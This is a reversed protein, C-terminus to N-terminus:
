NWTIGYRNALYKGLRHIEDLNLGRNYMMVEAIYGNFWEDLARESGLYCVTGTNYAIGDTATGDNNGSHLLNNYKPWTWKWLDADSTSVENYSIGLFRGSLLKVVSAYGSGASGTFVDSRATWGSTGDILDAKTSYAVRMALAIRQFYFVYVRDGQVVLWPPTNPQVNTWTDFTVLGQSVWTAGNDTSKVQTFATGNDARVLGIVVGGGLAVFCSETFRSNSSTAALGNIVEIPSGWTAGNDSSKIVFVRFTTGDDGYWSMLLQGDDTRIMSGHPCFATAGTTPITVASSWTVGNDDSYRTVISQWTQSGSHLRAYMLVFRGTPTVGGTVGRLDHDAESFLTVPAAWTAGGDLSTRKKIIGFNTPGVHLTGETYIYTLVNTTEPVAGRYTTILAAWEENSMTGSSTQADITNVIKYQLVLEHFGTNVDYVETWGSDPTNANGADNVALAMIIENSQSLIGTSGSNWAASFGENSNTKDLVNSIGLGAVKCVFAYKVYSNSSSFTLTITGGSPLAISNHCSILYIRLGQVATDIMTKDINYINGVSDVVSSLTHIDSQLHLAIIISEGSLVAVTTTLVLTNGSGPIQVGPAILVPNTITASSGLLHQFTVGFADYTSTNGVHDPTAPLSVDDILGLAKFVSTGVNTLGTMTTSVNEKTLVMKDAAVRIYRNGSGSASGSCILGHNAAVERKMVILWTVKSGDLNTTGLNFLTDNSGDFDVVSHGSIIGLKLLPRNALVSQKMHNGIGSRDDWCGVVDNDAIAPTIRTDEQWMPNDGRLWLKLGPIQNPLFPRRFIRSINPV